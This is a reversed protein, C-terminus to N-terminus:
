NLLKLFALSIIRFISNHLCKRGIMKETKWISFASVKNDTNSIDINDTSYVNQKM